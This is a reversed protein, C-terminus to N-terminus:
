SGKLKLWELEIVLSVLQDVSVSHLFHVSLFVSQLVRRGDLLFCVLIIDHHNNKDESSNRIAVVHPLISELKVSIEIFVSM